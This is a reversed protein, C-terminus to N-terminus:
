LFELLVRRGRRGPFPEAARQPAGQQPALPLPLGAPPPAPPPADGRAAGAVACCDEEFMTEIM